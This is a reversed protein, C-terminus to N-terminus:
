QEALLSQLVDLIDGGDWETAGFMAYRIKGQKDVVYSTPFAFVQWRKLAAGDSDFLIPFRVAVADAEFQDLFDTVVTKEEAMNVGLIVFPQSALRDALRQMSPMEKVCPPCWSAWFNVLVVRGHFDALSVQRGDLDRLSLAPPMPDGGYPKLQREKKETRPAPQPVSLAVPQRAKDPMAALFRMAEVLRKPLRATEQHELEVANSRFFYRDRVQRIVQVMVDSGGKELAPITMGLKWYWPSKEPQLVFIPLNSAMVIPMIEAAEGPDPTEVFLKPSILVAGGFRRSDPNDGQWQRVGRLVPIATRGTAAIFIRKNTQREAQAILRAVDSAPLQELSSPLLPLFRAELLDARWVTVGLAALREAIQEDGEQPGAESPLWILLDNGEAPDITVTVETGDALEVTDAIVSTPLAAFLGLVTLLCFMWRYKNMRLLSCM